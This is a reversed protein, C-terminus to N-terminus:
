SNLAKRADADAKIQAEGYTLGHAELAQGFQAMYNGLAERLKANEAQAKFLGVKWERAHILEARLKANERELERAFDEWYKHQHEPGIRVSNTRPTDPHKTADM